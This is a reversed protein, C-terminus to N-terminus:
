GKGRKKVDQGVGPKVVSAYNKIRMRGDEKFHIGSARRVSWAM